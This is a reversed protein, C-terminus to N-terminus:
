GPANLFNDLRFRCATQLQILQQQQKVLLEEATAQDTFKFKIPNGAKLQALSAQHATIVHALRPYGGTSQHDAMLVILQGDPLLQITGFNVASSLLEDKIHVSLPPGKLRYGMRDSQPSITFAKNIFIDKSEQKLRDWERGPLVFIEESDMYLAKDDASWPLVHFEKKGILPCLDRKIRMPIEDDKHLIRGNFGGAGARLHTSYAGLWPEIAFGGHIAIYARAGDVLSPFQLISYKSLLVPHMNGIPEGNVHAAFDAGTVAILAPQEFFYEGAPFHLEIVPEGPDNGVLINALQASLRDMAGTPNIGLHQWHYRGQDQVTDMIGAKIIRLNM